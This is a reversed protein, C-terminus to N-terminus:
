RDEGGLMGMEGEELIQAHSNGGGGGCPELRLAGEVEEGEEHGAGTEPRTCASVVQCM